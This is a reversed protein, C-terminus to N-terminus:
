YGILLEGLLCACLLKNNKQKGELKEVFALRGRRALSIKRKYTTHPSIEVAHRVIPSRRDLEVVPKDNVLRFQITLRASEAFRHAAPPSASVSLSLTRGCLKHVRSRQLCEWPKLQGQNDRQAQDAPYRKCQIFDS